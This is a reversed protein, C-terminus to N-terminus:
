KNTSLSDLQDQELAFGEMLWVGANGEAATM